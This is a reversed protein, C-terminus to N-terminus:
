ISIRSKYFIYRLALNVYCLFKEAKKFNFYKAKLIHPWVETQGNKKLKKLNLIYALRIVKDKSWHM